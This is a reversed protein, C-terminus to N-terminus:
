FDFFLFIYEFMEVYTVSLNHCQKNYYGYNYQQIYEHKESRLSAFYVAEAESWIRVSSLVVFIEGFVRERCESSGYLVSVSDLKVQLKGGVALDHYHM